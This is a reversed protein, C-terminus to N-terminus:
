RRVELVIDLSNKGSWGGCGGQDVGDWGVSWIRMGSGKKASRLKDGFPDDLEPVKGEALYEAAARTLRFHAIYELFARHSPVWDITGGPNGKWAFFPHHAATAEACAEATRLRAEAWPSGDGRAVGEALRYEIEAYRAMLLKQSFAFKWSPVDRERASFEGLFGEVTKTRLVQLATFLADQQLVTGFPPLSREVAGLEQAVQRLHNRDLLGAAMMANLEGLLRDQHYFANYRNVSNRGLRALDELFQILDLLLEIAEASEGHEVLFRARCIGFAIVKSANFSPLPDNWPVMRILDGRHTGAQVSKLLPLFQELLAQAGERSLETKGTAYNDLAVADDTYTLATAKVYDKWANGPVAEGRLVPRLLKTRQLKSLRSWTEREVDDWRCDAVRQVATGVSAPPLGVILLILALWVGGHIRRPEM